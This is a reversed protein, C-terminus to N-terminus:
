ATVDIRPPPDNLDDDRKSRQRKSNSNDDGGDDVPHIEEASEVQHEFEDERDAANKRLTQARRIQRQKEIGAIQQTQASGLIAGALPNFDTMATGGTSAPSPRKFDIPLIADLRLGKTAAEDVAYSTPAVPGSYVIHSAYMGGVAGSLYGSTSTKM